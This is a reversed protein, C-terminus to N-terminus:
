QYFLSLQYAPHYEIEPPPSTEAVPVAAARRKRKRGRIKGANGQKRRGEGLMQQRDMESMPDNQRGMANAAAIAESARSKKKRRM